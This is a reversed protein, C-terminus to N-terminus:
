RVGGAAIGLGSAIAHIRDRRDESLPLTDCVWAQLEVEQAARAQADFDAADADGDRLIREAYARDLEPSSLRSLREIVAQGAADPEAPLDIGESEALRHLAQSLKEGDEVMQSGFSRVQTNSSRAAVTRSLALEELVRRQARTLFRADSRRQREVEARASPLNIAPATRTPAPSPTPPPTRTPTPDAQALAVAVGLVSGVVTAIVKLLRESM